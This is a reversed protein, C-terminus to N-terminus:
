RDQHFLAAAEQRFTQASMSGLSLTTPNQTIRHGSRKCFRAFKLTASCGQTAEKSTDTSEKCVDRDTHLRSISKNRVEQISAPVNGVTSKMGCANVQRLKCEVRSVGKYSTNRIYAFSMSSIIIVFCLFM